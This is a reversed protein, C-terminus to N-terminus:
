EKVLLEQEVELWKGKKEGNRTVISRRVVPLDGTEEVLDTRTTSM